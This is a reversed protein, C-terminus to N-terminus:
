SPGGESTKGTDEQQLTINGPPAVFYEERVESANKMVKEVCFGDNVVDERLYLCRDELVTDMPKVGETNVLLLQDAFRVARSLREVGAEDSFDVLALRELKRVTEKDIETEDPLTDPDIETWTPKDPIKSSLGRYAIWPLSKMMYHSVRISLM